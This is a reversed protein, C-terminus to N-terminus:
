PLSFAQKISTRIAGVLSQAYVVNQRYMEQSVAEMISRIISGESFDTVLSTHGSLYGVMSAILDEKRRINFTATEVM